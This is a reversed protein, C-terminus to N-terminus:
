KAFQGAGIVVSNGARPISGGNAAWCVVWIDYQHWYTLGRFSIQTTKTGRSQVFPSMMTKDWIVVEYGDIKLRSDTVPDWRIDFGDGWPTVVINRPSRVTNRTSTATYIMSWSSKVADGASSRVQYEWDVGETTFTTDWRNSPISQTIWKTTGARRQRLDYGRAGFVEDWTVRVGTSSGSADINDPVYVNREPFSDPISLPANGIGFYTHLAKSFVSAIQYEGYSNPHLGDYGAACTELGCDYNNSLDVALVPSTPLSWFPAYAKLALNYRATKDILDERGLVRLRQPINGILIKLNPKAMRAFDVLAKMNMLTATDDGYFWALDNFGMLVFIIDPQYKLIQSFILDRDEAIARGWVAFHDHDFEPHVERAYQGTTKFPALKPPQNNFTPPKPAYPEMPPLTGNYPGVFDFEFEPAENRLWQWLRYRWTYDGQFGHTISDGVFMIKQLGQLHIKLKSNPDESHNLNGNRPSCAEAAFLRNISLCLAVLHRDTHGLAQDSDKVDATDGFYDTLIVNPYSKPSFRHYAHSLLDSVADAARDRRSQNSTEVVWSLQLISKPHMDLYRLQDNRMDRVSDAESSRSIANFHIGFHFQNSAPKIDQALMAVCGKGDSILEGLPRDSLPYGQPFPCPKKIGENLMNMLPLWDENEEMKSVLNLGNTTTTNFLFGSNPNIDIMLLEGPYNTM